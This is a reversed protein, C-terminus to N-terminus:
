GRFAKHAAPLTIQIPTSSLMLGCFYLLLHLLFSFVIFFLILISKGISTINAMSTERNPTAVGTIAFPTAGAAVGGFALVLLTPIDKVAIGLACFAPPFM